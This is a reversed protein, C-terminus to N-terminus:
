TRRKSKLVEKRAFIEDAEEDGILKLTKICFYKGDMTKKIHVKGKLWGHEECFSLSFYNSNGNAFWRIKRRANKQCLYCRTSTVKWDKM